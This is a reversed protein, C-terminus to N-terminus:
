FMRLTGVVRYIQKVEGEPIRVADYAASSGELLLERSSGEQILRVRRLLIFNGSVIVYIRGPIIATTDTQKLFVISGPMIDAAIADDYCRFACDCDEILPVYLYQSPAVEQLGRLMNGTVNGEYFPIRYDNSPTGLMEGEGTLLWGISVEPFRDVIRRALNQSLKGKGSKIHYFIDPRALGIHRAFFNTSMDAWKIVTELRRWSDTNNTM